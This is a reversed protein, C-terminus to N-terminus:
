DEETFSACFDVGADTLNGEKTLYGASLYHHARRGYSGQLSWVIHTRILHGFLELTQLASLEGNEFAIVESAIDRGTSNGVDPTTTSM